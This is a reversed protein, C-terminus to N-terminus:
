RAGINFETGGVFYLVKTAHGITYMLQVVKKKDILNSLANLFDENNFRAPNVEEMVRLALDEGRISNYHTLKQVIVLEYENHMAGSGRAYLNDHPKSDLHRLMRTFM